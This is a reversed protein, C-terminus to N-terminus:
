FLAGVQAHLVPSFPKKKSVDGPTPIGASTHQRRGYAIHCRVLIIKSAHKLLILQGQQQEISLHYGPQHGRQAPDPDSVEALDIASSLMLIASNWISSLVNSDTGQDHCRLRVRRTGHCLHVAFHSFRRHASCGHRVRTGGSLPVPQEAAAQRGLLLWPGGCFPM